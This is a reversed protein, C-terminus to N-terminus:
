VPRGPAICMHACVCCVCLSVVPRNRQSNQFARQDGSLGSRRHLRHTGCELVSSAIPNSNRGLPSSLNLMAQEIGVCVSECVKAIPCKRRLDAYESPPADGHPRSFPFKPLAKEQYLLLSPPLSPPLSVLVPLSPQIYALVGSTKKKAGQLHSCSRPLVSSGPRAIQPSVKSEQHKDSQQEREKFATVALARRSRGMCACRRVSGM